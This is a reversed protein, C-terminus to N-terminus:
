KDLIPDDGRMSKALADGADKMTRREMRRGKRTTRSGRMAGMDNMIAYASEERSRGHYPKKGELSEMIGAKLAEPM